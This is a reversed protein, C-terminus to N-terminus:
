KFEIIFSRSGSLLFSINQLYCNQMDAILTKNLIIFNTDITDKFINIDYCVNAIKDSINEKVEYLNRM